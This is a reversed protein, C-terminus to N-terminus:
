NCQYVSDVLIAYQLMQHCQEIADDQKDGEFQEFEVVVETLLSVAFDVLAFMVEEEASMTAVSKQAFHLVSLYGGSEAWLTPNPVDESRPGRVIRMRVRASHSLDNAAFVISRNHSREPFRKSFVNNPVIRQM